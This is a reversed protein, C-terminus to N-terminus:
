KLIEESSLVWQELIEESWQNLDELSIARKGYSVIGHKTALEETYNDLSYVKELRPTGGTYHCVLPLIGTKDEQILVQDEEVRLTVWAMGELMNLPDKQTSVYNGLSYFCLAEQGNEGEVWEVPQVVHPHTGIILDAGADTMQKAFDRQVESPKTSYETGWHPCVITFDAIEEARQIDEVVQSNLKTFDIRGTDLDWDCLINLYGQISKPITEMNPSYTYNLVAVKIGEVELIPIEYTFESDKDIGVMLIDEKQEWFEVCHLLGGIGKDASHNTAQLVVNFGAKEISDGVETPSNFLPYGSFGLENGGLITEQNIIKIEALDLYEKIGQFLFDFNYSGDEQKGTAVIGMHLLNDGVAMLQLEYEEFVPEEVVTTTAEEQIKQELIIEQVEVTEKSNQVEEKEGESCGIFTMFLFLLLIIRIYKKM